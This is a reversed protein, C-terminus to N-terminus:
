SKQAELTNSLFKSSQWGLTSRHGSAQDMELDVCFRWSRGPTAQLNSSYLKDELYQKKLTMYWM